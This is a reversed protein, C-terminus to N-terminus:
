HTYTTQVTHWHGSCMSPTCICGLFALTVIPHKRNTVEIEKPYSPVAREETANLPVFLTGGKGRRSTLNCNKEIIAILDYIDM